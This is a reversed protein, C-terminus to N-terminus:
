NRRKLNMTEGRIVKKAGIKKLNRKFVQIKFNMILIIELLNLETLWNKKNTETELKKGQRVGSGFFTM